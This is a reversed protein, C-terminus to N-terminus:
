AGVCLSAGAFRAQARTPEGHEALHHHSTPAVLVAVTAIFGAFGTLFLIGNAAIAQHFRQTFIVEYQFGLFIQAGLVLTRLESLESAISDKTSAMPKGPCAGSNTFRVPREM